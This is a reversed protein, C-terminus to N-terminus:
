MLGGSVPSSMEAIQVHTPSNNIIAHLIDIRHKEPPVVLITDVELTSIAEYSFIIKDEIRKGQQIPNRDVFGIWSAQNIELDALLLQTASCAPALLVRKGAVSWEHPPSDKEALRLPAVFFKDPEMISITDKSRFNDFILDADLTMTHSHQEIAVYVREMIDRGERSITAVAEQFYHFAEIGHKKLLLYLKSYAEIQGTYDHDYQQLSLPTFDFTLWVKQPRLALMAYAFGTIDDEGCNESCFIYKAALMGKGKCGSVAYRSLNELVQLYYGGGRLRKYTSPLGADVSVTCWYISGDALGDYIHQSFRVANTHMLVRIRRTLFFELYEKLNDLLTPEGGAFDVHANWEVDEPSFQRLVELADYQPPAQQDNRAYTCYTCHLNCLTYHQLDIHGLRTFIIDGYRKIEVKLCRKCDMDSHDDNLMVICQRRREAIIDRNVEGAVIENSTCFTPPMLAGRACSRLGDIGLFLGSELKSCTKVRDDPKFHDRSM